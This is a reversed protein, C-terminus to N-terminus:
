NAEKSGMKEQLFSRYAFDVKLIHNMLWDKLFKLLENGVDKGDKFENVFDTVQGVLKRHKEKHMATEPYGYKEFLSEEYGFHFVTYEVLEDLAEDVVDKGKKLMIGRYIKNILDILKKHHEDVDGVNTAMGDNWAMLTMSADQYVFRNVLTKMDSAMQAMKAAAEQTNGAGDTTGQAAEAVGTINQAIEAAGKAAETINRGIENTTATQEEVASAIVTSIDNVRNIVGSIQGIAEISSNTDSQIAQIKYSIDETAKATQNALEKVENAVVAFGKGAEGARAAEITANLALLNTQEAISTIVKIVEGIESSSEGLKAITENTKKAIEVASNAVEASENANQAIEMISANMEEASSAVTQINSSVQESAASVVNAQAATEEANASMQDSVESVLNSSQTLDNSTVAIAGINSRLDMIFNSLSTGMRGAADSGIVNVQKTIDGEAAADVVELLNVIRSEMNRQEQENEDKIMKNNREEEVKESIEEWNVIYGMFFGDSSYIGNITSKLVAKGVPVTTEHPLNKPIKLIRELKGSDKFLHLISGRLLEEVEMDFEETIENSISNLTEEAKHNAYVLDFSENAIFINTRLNDLGAKFVLPIEVLSAKNHSGNNERRFIRSLLGKKKPTESIEPVSFGKTQYAPPNM